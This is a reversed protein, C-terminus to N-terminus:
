EDKENKTDNIKNKICDKIYEIQSKNLGRSRLINEIDTVFEDFTKDWNNSYNWRGKWNSLAREVLRDLMEEETVDLEKKWNDIMGRLVTSKTQETYLCYLSLLNNEQKDINVSINSFDKQAQSTKLRFLKSM